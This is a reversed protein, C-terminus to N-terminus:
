PQWEGAAFARGSPIAVSPGNLHLLLTFAHCWDPEGPPPEPCWCALDRGTIEEEAAAILDPQDRFWYYFATSAIRATGPRIVDCDPDALRFAATVGDVSIVAADLYRRLPNARTLGRRITFVNAYRSGALGPARRGVYVSGLPLRGHFYDGM